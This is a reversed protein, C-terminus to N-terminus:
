LIFSDLAFFELSSRSSTSISKKTTLTLTMELKSRMTNYEIVSFFPGPGRFGFNVLMNDGQVMARINGLQSSIGGENPIDDSPTLIDVRLGQGGASM